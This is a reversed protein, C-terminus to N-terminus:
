KPSPPNQVSYNMNRMKSPKILTGPSQPQAASPPQNSGSGQSALLATQPQTQHDGFAFQVLAHIRDTKVVSVIRNDHLIPSQM